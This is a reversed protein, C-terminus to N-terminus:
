YSFVMLWPNLVIPFLIHCGAAASLPLIVGWAKAGIQWEAGFLHTSLLALGFVVITSISLPFWFRKFIKPIEQFFNSRRVEKATASWSINYSFLHALIAQSLPIALGGFFILLYPIWMINEFLSGLIKKGGVRYEFLAYGLSGAGFFVVVSALYIEFSRLSTYFGDVPLQFGLLVYNILAVTFSAALGYYSSMYGLVSLKYHLPARSWIFQHFSTTIPAKYWKKIPKFIMESCGYAYKQWRNLEDDITLSVGEKFEGASYTAWRFTWGKQLLRLAMDFDESVNAESWIKEVGDEDVFAVDQLAKWRLFANHGMFPPVEGNACAYSICRTIRRTLFAMGNEFYHHAVKLIDSEHQIIAVEPSAAMERAADRLCDQPVITDSDVILIIEGLRIAKGNAAWPTHRRGSSEYSDGVAMQLAREELDGLERRRSELEAPPTTTGNTGPIIPESSHSSTQYEMGYFGFSRRITPREPLEDIGLDAMLQELHREARLSLSLCTLDGYNLNSAKKFRGERKFGGEEGDHKPRAVWGINQDAYYSIRINREVAPLLRLGDDNIFLSSTGGQRAYTQMARKLSQISPMLVNELSEKYVPMQITIHPLNGDVAKNPPPPVASYYKSNSHFQAVPGIMMSVNQIIQLAFFLSVCFLFPLTAILALRIFSRDLLWEQILSNVSNGMFVIALAAALGNYVPAYLLVPRKQEATGFELSELGGSKISKADEAGDSSQRENQPILPSPEEGAQQNKEIDPTRTAIRLVAHGSTSGVTSSPATLSPSAATTRGRWLLKILRQELDQYAPVIAHLSDSWMVLVREDRIFAAGQEKDAHPLMLMTELVQIRINGDVYLWADEPSIDALAAHVTANRVKVAVVPNLHAVATEFPELAINEYPFVRFEPPDDSGAETIRVAVGSTVPEDPKFWADGQTLKFLHHLLADWRDYDMAM